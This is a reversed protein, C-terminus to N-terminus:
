YVLIKKKDQKITKEVKVKDKEEKLIALLGNYIKYNSISDIKQKTKTEIYYVIEETNIVTNTGLVQMCFFVDISDSPKLSLMEKAYNKLVKNSITAYKKSSYKAHIVNITDFETNMDEFDDYVYRLKAGKQLKFRCIEIEDKNPQEESLDICFIYEDGDKEFIKDTCSIKLYTLKDTAFYPITVDNDIIFLKGNLCIIGQTLVLKKDKAYVECGSIIGDTYDYYILNPLLFVQDALQQMKKARIIVGDKFSPLYKRIEM